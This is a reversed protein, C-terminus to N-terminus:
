NKCLRQKKEVARGTTTSYIMESASQKKSFTKQNVLVSDKCGSQIYLVLVRSLNRRKLKQEKVIEDIVPKPKHTMLEMFTPGYEKSIRDMADKKIQYAERQKETLDEENVILETDSSLEVTGAILGDVVKKFSLIRIDLRLTGLLCGFIQKESCYLVRYEDQDIKLISGRQIIIDEM